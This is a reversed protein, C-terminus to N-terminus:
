AALRGSWTFACASRMCTAPLGGVRDAQRRRVVGQCVGARAARTFLRPADPALGAYALLLGIPVVMVARADGPKLDLADVLHKLLVPVGVNAVKASLLFALALGVRWRYRWLYPLLRKLTGWDSRAAGPQPQTPTPLAVASRRM